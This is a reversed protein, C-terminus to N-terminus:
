IVALLHQGGTWFDCDIMASALFHLALRM